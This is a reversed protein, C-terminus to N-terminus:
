DNKVPMNKTPHRLFELSQFIWRPPHGSASQQLSKRARTSSAASPVQNGFSWWVRCVQTPHFSGQIRNSDRLTKHTKQQLLYSYHCKKQTHNIPPIGLWSNPSNRDDIKINWEMSCTCRMKRFSSPHPVLNCCYVWHFDWKKAVVIPTKWTAKSMAMLKSSCSAM